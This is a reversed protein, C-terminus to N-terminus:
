KFTLKFMVERNFILSVSFFPGLDSELQWLICVLSQICDRSSITRVIKSRSYLNLSIVGGM